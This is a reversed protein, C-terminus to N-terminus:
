SVVGSFFVGLDSGIVKMDFAMEAEIRDSATAEMRFRKIRLGMNGAGLYGKWSFTYGASPQMISPSPNSYCLLAHKGFIFSFADTAGEVATNQVARAVLVRDVDFLAALLDETVIGRQTYKIRDLILTHNRLARLVHPGIVLTNPKFGTAQEIVLSWLAVDDVPTSGSKDWQNVQNGTAGSSVGTVDTGWVGTTFYSAAWLQDRKLLMNQTVLISADRDADLPNDTNARVQDDVDEHVGYVPAYYTGTSRTSGIGPTQTGPARRRVESRFWYGKPYTFYLDSQKEVPLNPFVQAAIFRSENQVYAVSINTLPRNVHVDSATPQPM